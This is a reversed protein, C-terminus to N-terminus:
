EHGGGGEKWPVHKLFPYYLDNDMDVEFSGQPDTKDENKGFQVFPIDTIFAAPTQESGEGMVLVAAAALGDAINAQELKFERGFIDETQRYDNLPAFGAYGLSIGVTGRRLPISHSDTIVVAINTVGYKEKAWAIIEEAAGNPNNPWLVFNEKANSEDIGATPILLNNKITHMVWEGPVESRELYRDAERKILEDKEVSELPVCRGQWISVVKSSVALVTNEPFETISEGLAELLDDQPPVLARTKIAQINM